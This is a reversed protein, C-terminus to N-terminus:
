AKPGGEEAAVLEAAALLEAAIASIKALAEDKSACAQSRESGDPESWRALWRKGRGHRPGKM